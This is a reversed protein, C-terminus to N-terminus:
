APPTAATVAVQGDGALQLAVARGIGSTAGTALPTARRPQIPYDDVSRSRREENRSLVQRSTPHSHPPQSPQPATRMPAPRTQRGRRRPAAFGIMEPRARCRPELGQWARKVRSRARPSSGRVGDRASGAGRGGVGASGGRVILSRRRRLQSATPIRSFCLHWRQGRQQGPPRPNSDGREGEASLWPNPRYGHPDARRSAGRPSWVARSIRSM